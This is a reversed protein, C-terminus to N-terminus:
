EYAFTGTGQNYFLQGSIKDYMCPVNSNDLVPILDILKVNNKTMSFSYVRTALLVPSGDVSKMGFLMCTMTPSITGTRTVSDSRQTDTNTFDFRMGGSVPVLDVTFHQYNAVQWTSVTFYGVFQLVCGTASYNFGYRSYAELIGFGSATQPTSAGTTAQGVYHTATLSDPVIGTDIWQTGTSELYQLRTWGGASVGLPNFAYPIPM